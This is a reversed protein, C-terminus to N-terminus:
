DNPMEVVPSIWCRCNPHAPPADFQRGNFDGFPQGMEVVRGNLPGCVKCGLDDRNTKWEARKIGAQEFAIKNGEAFARTTETVAIASARAQSVVLGDGVARQLEGITAGPRQIWEEVIGGVLRQTTTNLQALLDDTYQAAWAAASENALESDFGLALRAGTQAAETIPPLLIALLQRAENAWFQEDM